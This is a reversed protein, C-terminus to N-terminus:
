DIRTATAEVQLKGKSQLDDSSFIVTPSGIPILVNAQWRNQRIIPPAAADPAKITSSIEASVQLALKSGVESAQRTDVNVGIDLYQINDKDDTHIPIKDGTRIQAPPGLNTGIATTYIRSNTVKGNEAVEQVSYSLHYYHTTGEAPKNDQAFLYAPAAAFIMALCSVTFKRM